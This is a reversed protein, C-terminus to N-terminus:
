VADSDWDATIVGKKLDVGVIFRKIFPILVEAGAKELVLIDNASTELLSKVTGLTKGEPTVVPLGQLDCWHYEGDSLPALAEHRIAVDAGTLAAAADRDHCSPFHIAVESGYAKAQFSPELLWQSQGPPKIWVEKCQFIQGDTHHRLWVWGKLGYPRGIRGITVLTQEDDASDSM